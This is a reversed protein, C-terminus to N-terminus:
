AGSSGEPDPQPQTAASFTDKSPQEGEKVRSGVGKSSEGQPHAGLMM